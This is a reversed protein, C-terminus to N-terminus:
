EGEDGPATEFSGIPRSPNQEEVVPAPVLRIRDGTIIVETTRYCGLTLLGLLVELTGTKTRIVLNGIGQNKAFLDRTEELWDPHNLPIVWFVWHARTRIEFRSEEPSPVYEFDTGPPFRDSPVFVSRGGAGLDLTV